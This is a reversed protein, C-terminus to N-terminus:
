SASQIQADLAQIRDECAKLAAAETTMRTRAAKLAAGLQHVHRAFDNGVWAMRERLEDGVEAKAAQSLSKGQRIGNVTNAWASPKQIAEWAGSLKVLADAVPDDKAKKLEDLAAETAADEVKDKVVDEIEGKALEAMKGLQSGAKAALQEGKGALESVKGMLIRLLSAATDVGLEINKMTNYDDQLKDILEAQHAKSARIVGELVNFSQAARATRSRLIVRLRVNTERSRKLGALKAAAEKLAKESPPIVLEDGPQINEPKKRKDAVAKNAPASWLAKADRLKYKRAIGEVTEGKKVKVTHIEM